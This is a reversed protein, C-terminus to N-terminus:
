LLGKLTAEITPSSPREANASVIKGDKNIIIFTPFQLINYEQIFESELAKDAILQVGKLQKETVMKKWAEKNEDISISVFEINKGHFKAELAKLAPIEGICPKCWTAWVDIYVVKGKFDDLSSTGGNFNEYNTFKPSPNGAVLKTAIDYAKKAEDKTKENTANKNIFDFILKNQANGPTILPLVGKALDARINASKLSNITNIFNEVQKPDNPNSLLNFYESRVLDRYSDVLDYEQADDFNISEKEAFFGDPLIAERGSFYSYYTPYVILYEIFKYKSWKEQNKVFEENFNYPKLKENLENLLSKINEKFEQPKQGFLNSDAGNIKDFVFANKEILFQTKKAEEGSVQTKSLDENLTIDLNVGKNLYIPTQVAPNEHLYYFPNEGLDKITDRFTGDASVPIERVVEDNQLLLLKQNEEPSFVKGSIVAYDIDKKTAKDRCASLLSIAAISTIFIRKM